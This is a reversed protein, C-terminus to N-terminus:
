KKNKKENISELYRSEEEILLRELEDEENICVKDFEMLKRVANYFADLGLKVANRVKIRM